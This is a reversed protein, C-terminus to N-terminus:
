LNKDGQKELSCRLPEGNTDLITHDIWNVKHGQVVSLAYCLDSARQIAEDSPLPSEISLYATAHTENNLSVLQERTTYEASPHLEVPVSEILLSISRPPRDLPTGSFILNTLAFINSRLSKQTRGSCPRLRLCSARRGKFASGICPVKPRSLRAAARRATLSLRATPQVSNGLPFPMTLPATSLFDGMATSNFRSTVCSGVEKRWHCRAVVLFRRISSCAVTKARDTNPGSGERHIRSRRPATAGPRITSERIQVARNTVM